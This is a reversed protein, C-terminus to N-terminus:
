TERLPLKVPASQAPGLFRAVTSEGRAPSSTAKPSRAKGPMARLSEMRLQPQAALKATAPWWGRPERARVADGKCVAFASVLRPFTPNRFTRGVVNGTSNRAPVYTVRERGGTLATFAKFASARIAYFRRRMGM